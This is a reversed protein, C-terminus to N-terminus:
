RTSNNKLAINSARSIQPSDALTGIPMTSFHRHGAHPSSSDPNLVNHSISRPLSGAGGAGVDDIRKIHANKVQNSRVERNAMFCDNEQLFHGFICWLWHCARNLIVTATKVDFNSRPNKDDFTRPIKQMQKNIEKIKRLKLQCSNLSSKQPM